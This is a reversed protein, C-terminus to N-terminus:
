VEGTAMGVVHPLTILQGPTLSMQAMFQLSKPERLVDDFAGIHRSVQEWWM